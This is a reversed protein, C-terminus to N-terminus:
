FQFGMTNQINSVLNSPDFTTKSNHVKQFPKSFLIDLYLECKWNQSRFCLIHGNLCGISPNLHGGFPIHLIVNSLYKRQNCSQEQFYRFQFEYTLITIGCFFFVWLKIILFFSLIGMKSDKCNIASWNLGWWWEYFIYNLSSM